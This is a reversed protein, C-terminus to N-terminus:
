EQVLKAALMRLSMVLRADSHLRAASEILRESEFPNVENSERYETEAKTVLMRLWALEKLYAQEAQQQAKAVKVIEM